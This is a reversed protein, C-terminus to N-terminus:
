IPVSRGSKCPTIAGGSQRGPHQHQHLLSVPRIPRARVVYLRRSPSQESYHFSAAGCREPQFPTRWNIPARLFNCPLYGCQVKCSWHPRSQSKGGTCRRVLPPWARFKLLFGGTAQGACRGSFPIPIRFHRPIRGTDASDGIQFYLSIFITRVTTRKDAAITQWACFMVATVVSM